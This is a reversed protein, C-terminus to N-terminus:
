TLVLLGHQWEDEGKNGGGADEELAAGVHSDFNESKALL